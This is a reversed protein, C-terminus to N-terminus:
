PCSPYPEPLVDLSGTALTVVFEVPEAFRPGRLVNNPKLQDM